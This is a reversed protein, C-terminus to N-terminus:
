AMTKVTQKAANIADNASNIVFPHWFRKEDDDKAMWENRAAAVQSWPMDIIRGLKVCALDPIGREGRKANAINNAHIGLAAALQKQGGCKMKGAELMESFNM